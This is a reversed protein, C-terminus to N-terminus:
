VTEKQFFVNEYENRNIYELMQENGSIAENLDSIRKDLENIETNLFAVAIEVDKKTVIKESDICGGKGIKIILDRYLSYVIVDTNASTELLKNLDVDKQYKPLEKVTGVKKVSVTKKYWGYFPRRNCPYLDIMLCEFRDSDDLIVISNKGWNDKLPTLALRKTKHRYDHEILNNVAYQVVQGQFRNNTPYPVEVIDKINFQLLDDDTNFFFPECRNPIVVTNGQVYLDKYKIYGSYGDEKLKKEERLKDIYYKSEKKSNLVTLSDLHKIHEQHERIKKKCSTITGRNDQNINKINDIITHLEGISQVIASYRYEIPICRYGCYLLFQPYKGHGDRGVLGVLTRQANTILLYKTADWMIM